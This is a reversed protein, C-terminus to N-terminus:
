DTLRMLNQLTIVGNNPPPPAEGGYNEALCEFYPDVFDRKINEFLDIKKIARNVEPHIRRLVTLDGIFLRFGASAATNQHDHIETIMFPVFKEIVKGAYGPVELGNRIFRFLAGILNSNNPFQVFLNIIVNDLQYPQGFNPDKTYLLMKGVFDWQCTTAMHATQIPEIILALAKELINNMMKYTSENCVASIAQWLQGDALVDNCPIQKYMADIMEQKLFLESFYQNKSCNRILYFIHAKKESPVNDQNLAKIINQDFKLLAFTQAFEQIQFNPSTISSFLDFVCQDDLHQFLFHLFGVTYTSDQPRGFIFSQLVAAIRSILVEPVQGDKITKTIKIFIRDQKLFEERIAASINCLLVFAKMNLPDNDNSFAMDLVTDRNSAITRLVEPDTVLEQSEYNRLFEKFSAVSSPDTM